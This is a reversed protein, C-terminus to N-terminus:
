RLQRLLGGLDDHVDAPALVVLAHGNAFYVISGRGGNVDWTEPSVTAQILDILSRAEAANGGHAGVLAPAQSETPPSGEPQELAAVPQLRSRAEALQGAVRWRLGRVAVSSALRPDADLRRHIDLLRHVAAAQAAFGRATATDRVADEVEGRIVALPPLRVAAMGTSPAGLAVLGVGAGLLRLAVCRAVASM